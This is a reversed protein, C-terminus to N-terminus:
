QQAAKSLLHPAFKYQGEYRNVMGSDLLQESLKYQSRIAIGAARRLESLTYFREPELEMHKIARDLMTSKM